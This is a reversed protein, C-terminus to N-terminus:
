SSGQPKVPPQQGPQQGPQGGQPGRPGWGGHGMRGPGMGRGPRMHQDALAKQEPSLAAYLDARAKERATRDAEFQQRMADRLATREAADPRTGSQLRKQMEARRTEHAAAQSRASDEFQKWAGEQEATIKLDTKLKALHAAVDAAGMMRGQGPGQGQGHRGMGREHMGMGMGRGAGRASCESEPHASALGTTGLALIAGLTAILRISPKKM